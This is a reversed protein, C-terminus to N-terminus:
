YGQHALAFDIRFRDPDNGEVLGLRQYHTRQRAQRRAGVEGGLHKGIVYRINGHPIYQGTEYHQRRADVLTPKGIIITAGGRMPFAGLGPEGDDFNVQHEQVVEVVMEMRLAGDEGIRFVPHFSPIDVPCERDLVGLSAFQQRVEADAFYSRLADATRKQEVPTLGNPDGFELNPIPPLDKAMPWAIATDSFFSAEPVIGRIRFSQMFADRLGSKDTPHLDFDSTIV